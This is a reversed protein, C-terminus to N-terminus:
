DLKNGVQLEGKWVWFHLPVTLWTGVFLIVWLRGRLTYHFLYLTCKISGLQFHIYYKLISKSFLIIFGHVM